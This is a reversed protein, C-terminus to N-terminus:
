VCAAGLAKVAALELSWSSSLCVLPCHHQCSGPALTLFNHLSGQKAKTLVVVLCTLAITPPHRHLLIDKFM